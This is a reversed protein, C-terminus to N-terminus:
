TVFEKLEFLSPTYEAYPRIKNKSDRYIYNNKELWKTFDSQKIKLEKATDRINTLLNRDILDDFYNAKPQMIQITENQKRVVELTNKFMAKTSEDAFPLYTNIFLDDNNIYGGTERVKPLIDDFIWSEFEEASPLESNA